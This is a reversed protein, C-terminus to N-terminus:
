IKAPREQKAARWNRDVEETLRAIREAEQREPSGRKYRKRLRRPVHCFPCLGKTNEHERGCNTCIMETKGKQNQKVRQKVNESILFGVFRLAGSQALGGFPSTHAFGAGPFRDQEKLKLM